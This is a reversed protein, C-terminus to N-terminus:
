SPIKKGKKLLEKAGNVRDIVLRALAAAAEPRGLKMARGAMEQLTSPQYVYGSVAQWFLQSSFNDDPIIKAAGAVELQRANVVQHNDTAYPYPVLVSPLGRATVEALTTAGARSVVLDAAAYAPGMDKIYPFLHYLVRDHRQKVATLQAKVQEYEIMGTIHVIQLHQVPRLLDYAEIAAQNIKRAGRSGGFILLTFPREELGLIKLAQRRTAKLVEPRVPNGVVTVAKARGDWDAMHDYSLAVHDVRRGLWRNALGAVSNQEHIVTPYGLKVAALVPPFSAFGGMGVVVSPQHKKLIKGAKILSFGLRSMFGVTGASMRRPMGKVPLTELPYGAEAVLGKELGEDTGVFVIETKPELEKLAAALALGPYVHGATGGGCIM